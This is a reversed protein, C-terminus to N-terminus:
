HRGTHPLVRGGASTGLLHIRPVEAIVHERFDTDLMWCPGPGSPRGLARRPYYVRSVSPPTKAFNPPTKGGPSRLIVWPGTTHRKRAPTRRPGPRREAVIGITGPTTVATGRGKAHAIM